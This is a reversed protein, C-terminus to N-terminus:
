LINLLAEMNNHFDKESLHGEKMVMIKNCLALESEDHTAMIITGGNNLYYKLYEKVQNKCVIDLAASLEDLILVEPDGALAIAISVRRKMGGSLKAVCTNKITEIELLNLIGKKLEDNLKKGHASYWLNLNDWVSLEEILPNQQPVYGVYKKLITDDKVANEANFFIDGSDCKNTGSMISLLTSKGCGNAGIIGVCDGKEVKFSIDNLINREYKKFIHSVEIM